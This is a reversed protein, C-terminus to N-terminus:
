RRKPLRAVTFGEAEAAESLREDASLFVRKSTRGACWVLAAALQLSDAAPLPYKGLLREASDRLEERPLIERWGAHLVNLRAEAWEREKQTIEDTRHLRIIASHM